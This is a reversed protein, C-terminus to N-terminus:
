GVSGGQSPQTLATRPRLGLRLLHNELGRCLIASAGATCERQARAQSIAMGETDVLAILPIYDRKAVRRTPPNHDRAARV